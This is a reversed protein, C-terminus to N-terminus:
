ASDFYMVKDEHDVMYDAIDAIKFIYKRIFKDLVNWEFWLKPSFVCIALQTHDFMKNNTVVAETSENTHNFVDTETSKNVPITNNSPSVSNKVDHQAVEFAITNGKECMSITNKETYLFLIAKHSYNTDNKKVDRFFYDRLNL